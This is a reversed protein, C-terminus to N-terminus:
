PNSPQYAQCDIRPLTGYDACPGANYQDVEVNIADCEDM